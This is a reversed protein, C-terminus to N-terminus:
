LSLWMRLINMISCHFSLYRFHRPSPFCSHSQSLSYFLVFSRVFKKEKKLNVIIPLPMLAIGKQM